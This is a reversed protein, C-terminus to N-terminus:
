HKILLLDCTPHVLFSSTTSGVWFRDIINRNVLGIFLIDVHEKEIFTTLAHEPKGELLISQEEKIHWKESFEHLAEKHITLVKNKYKSLVSSIYCCHAVGWKSTFSQSWLKVNKVINEDMKAPRDHEHLPDIAGLLNLPKKWAKNSLLLITSDIETLTQFLPHRKNQPADELILLSNPSKSLETNLLAIHDASQSISIETKIASMQLVKLLKEKKQHILALADNEHSNDAFITQWYWRETSKIRAEIIIKLRNKHGSALHIIKDLTINNYFYRGDIFWTLQEAIM